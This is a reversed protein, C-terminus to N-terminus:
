VIAVINNVAKYLSFDIHEGDDLEAWFCRTRELPGPQTDRWYRVIKRTGIEALKDPRAALLAGVFKSDDGVVESGRGGRYLIARCRKIADGKTQFEVGAVTIPKRMNM